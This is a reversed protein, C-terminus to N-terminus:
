FLHCNRAKSYGFDCVKLRPATSGDLLTNELKLDRHCIEQMLLLYETWSFYSPGFQYICEISVSKLNPQIIITGNFPLLQSWFDVASLFVKGTFAFSYNSTKERMYRSCSVCYKPSIFWQYSIIPKKKLVVENMRLYLVLNFKKLFILFILYSM